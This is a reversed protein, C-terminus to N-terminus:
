LQATCHKLGYIRRSTIWLMWLYGLMTSYRLSRACGRCELRLEPEPKQPTRTLEELETCIPKFDEVRTKVEKTHNLEVFLNEPPMGLRYEKSILLLSIESINFGTREIVFTTYAMDDIFEAKDNTSAKVETMHWSGDPKRTLIDARTAFDDTLFAPEFLTKTDPDSMLNPTAAVASDFERTAILTGEPYLARARKGLEQGQEIQFRDAATITNHIQDQRMLWGLTPCTLATLFIRKTLPRM